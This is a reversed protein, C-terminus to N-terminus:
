VLLDLFLLMKGEDVRGFKVWDMSHLKRTGQMHDGHSRIIAIDFQQSGPVRYVVECRSNTGLKDNRVRVAHFYKILM